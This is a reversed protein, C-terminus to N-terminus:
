CQKDEKVDKSINRVAVVENHFLIGTQYGFQINFGNIKPYYKPYLSAFMESRIRESINSCLPIYTM